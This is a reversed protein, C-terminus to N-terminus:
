CLRAIGSSLFIARGDTRTCRQQSLDRTPQVGERCCTYFTGGGIFELDSPTFSYREELERLGTPLALLQM